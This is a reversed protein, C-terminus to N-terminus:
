RWRPAPNRVTPRWVYSRSSPLPTSAPRPEDVPAGEPKPRQIMSPPVLYARRMHRTCYPIGRELNAGPAGCFFFRASGPNGQPWRCCDNTLGLLSRRRAKVEARLSESQQDRKGRRRRAPSRALAPSASPAASMESAPQTRAGDPSVGNGKRAKSPAATSARLRLRFVKGLVASRSIGGLQAGITNATAGAAWLERLLAVREDTWPDQDGRM